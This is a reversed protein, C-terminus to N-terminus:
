RVCKKGRLAAIKDQFPYMSGAQAMAQLSKSLKDTSSSASFCAMAVTNRKRQSVAPQSESNKPSTSPCQKEEQDKQWYRIDFIRQQCGAHRASLDAVSPMRFAGWLDLSAREQSNLKKTQTATKKAIVRREKSM